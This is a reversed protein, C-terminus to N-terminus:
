SPQFFYCQTCNPDYIVLTLPGMPSSIADIGPFSSWANCMGILRVHVVIGSKNCKIYCMASDFNVDLEERGGKRDGPLSPGLTRQPYGSM